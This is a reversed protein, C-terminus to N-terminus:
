SSTPCPLVGQPFISPQTVPPKPALVARYTQVRKQTTSSTTEGSVEIKGLKVLENLRACLSSTRLKSIDELQERSVDWKFGTATTVLFLVLEQQKRAVGDAIHQKLSALRTSDTM